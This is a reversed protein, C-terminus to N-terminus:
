QESMAYWALMRQCCKDLQLLWKPYGNASTVGHDKVVKRNKKPLHYV